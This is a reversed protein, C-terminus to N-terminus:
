FIFWIKTFYKTSLPFTCVVNRTIFFTLLV